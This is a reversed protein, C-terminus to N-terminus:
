GLQQVISQTKNLRILVDGVYQRQWQQIVQWKYRLLLLLRVLVTQCEHFLKRPESIGKRMWEILTPIRVTALARELIHHHPPMAHIGCKKCIPQYNLQVVKVLEIYDLAMLTM